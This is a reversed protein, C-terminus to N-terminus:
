SSSDEKYFDYNVACDPNERIEALMCLSQELARMTDRPQRKIFPALLVIDGSADDITFIVRVLIKSKERMEYLSSYRELAFHKFHPEKLELRETKSLKFFQWRLKRRLKPELLSLFKEM